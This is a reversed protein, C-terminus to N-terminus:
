NLNFAYYTDGVKAYITTSIEDTSNIKVLGDTDANAKYIEVSTADLYEKIAGEVTVYAFGRVTLETVRGFLAINFKYYNGKILVYYVQYHSNEVDVFTKEVMKEGEIVFYRVASSNHDDCLTSKDDTDSKCSECIKDKVM